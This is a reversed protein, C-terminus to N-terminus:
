PNVAVDLVLPDERTALGPVVEDLAAVVDDYADLSVAPCALARALGAVDVDDLSPWSGRGAALRDMIAYGGNSFIVFLVGAGYRAASWLAQIAYLSSGDGLV